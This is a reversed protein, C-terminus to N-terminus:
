RRSSRDHDAPVTEEHRTRLEAPDRTWRQPCLGSRRLVRLVEETLCIGLVGALGAVVPEAVDVWALDMDRGGHM